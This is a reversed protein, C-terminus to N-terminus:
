CHRKNLDMEPEAESHLSSQDSEPNIVQFTSFLASRERGGVPDESHLSVSVKLESILKPSSSRARPTKWVASFRREGLPDEPRLASSQIGHTNPDSFSSMFVSMLM